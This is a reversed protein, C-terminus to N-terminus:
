VPFERVRLDDPWEVPDGGKRNSLHVRVDAGQYEERFGYIDHEIWPAVKEFGFIDPWEYPEIGDFGNDNRCIINAGLQKCFVPVGAARCQKVISRIWEINCPRAHPGSEGGVIVWHMGPQAGIQRRGHEALTWKRLDIPGLLPEASIFRVAAPTQLLLPIREDATKQDECSVGLWVRNLRDPLAGRIKPVLGMMREARKTLVQFIVQPAHAMARFVKWIMEDPIGEHFLDAMDEVFVKKGAPVKAFKALEKEDLFFEIQNQNQAKYDVQNGFRNNITEAYCHECGPSTHSCWWGKKGDSKRIARIPNSSYDAWEIKTKNM